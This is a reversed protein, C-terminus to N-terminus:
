GEVFENRKKWLFIGAGIAALGGLAALIYIIWNHNSDNIGTVPIDEKENIIIIDMDTNLVTATAPGQPIEPKLEVVYSNNGDAEFTYSTGDLTLKAGNLAADNSKLTAYSFLGVPIDSTPSVPQGYLASVRGDTFTITAGDDSSGSETEQQDVLGFALNYVGSLPTGSANTLLITNAKVNNQGVYYSLDYDHSDSEISNISYGRPIVFTIKDQDKMPLKGDNITLTKEGVQAKESVIKSLVAKPTGDVNRVTFTAVYSDANQIWDNENFDTFGNNVVCEFDYTKGIDASTLGPIDMTIVEDFSLSPDGYDGKTQETISVNRYNSVSTIYLNHENYDFLYPVATGTSMQTEQADSDSRSTYTHTDDNTTISVAVEYNDPLNEYYFSPYENGVGTFTQAGVTSYKQRTGDPSVLIVDKLAPDDKSVTAGSANVIKTEVSFTATRKVDGVNVTYSHRSISPKEFPAIQMESASATAPRYIGSNSTNSYVVDGLSETGNKPVLGSITLVVKEGNRLSTPFHNSYDFDYVEIIGDDSIQKGSGWDKVTAHGTPAGSVEQGYLDIPKVVASVTANSFDFADKNITDRLITTGDLTVSGTQSSTAVTTFTRNLATLDTALFYRRNGNSEGRVRNVMDTYVGSDSKTANRNYWTPDVFQTAGPYETTITRMYDAVTDTATNGYGQTNRLWIRFLTGDVYDPEYKRENTISTYKEYTLPDSDAFGFTGISYIETDKLTPSSKIQYAADIVQNGYNYQNDTDYNGPVGDTFYVVITLRDVEDGGQTTHKTMSRNDFINKAMYLGHQGLTGGNAELANVATGLRALQTADTVDLLANKYNDNTVSRYQIGNKRNNSTTINFDTGTLLETNADREGGAFGVLAVRHQVRTGDTNEQTSVTSVFENLAGKVADLRSIKNSAQYLTGNWYTETTSNYSGSPVGNADCAGGVPTGNSNCYTADILLHEVGADDKYALQNYGLHREFLTQRVFMGTDFFYFNGYTYREPDNGALGKAAWDATDYSVIYRGGPKLYGGTPTKYWIDDTWQLARKTGTMDTFRFRIWYEALGGQSSILLPYFHNDNTNGIPKNSTDLSPNYYYPSAAGDSDLQTTESQFWSLNDVCDGIFVTNPAHHEYLDGRKRYVRYYHDGTADTVKYYYEGAGDSIKWNKKEGNTYGTPVDPTSMSGSQDVVLVYDTPIQESLTQGVSNAELQLDYSTGNLSIEKKLSMGNTTKADPDVLTYPREFNAYADSSQANKYIGSAATNSYFKLFGTATDTETTTADKKLTLGTITVVLQQGNPHDASIYSAGYDFGTVSLTKSEDGEGWSIKSSPLFSQTPSFTPETTESTYTGDYIQATVHNEPHSPLNFDDSVIDRLVTDFSDLSATSTPTQISTSISEFVQELGNATSATFARPESAHDHIQSVDSLKYFQYFNYANTETDSEAWKAGRLWGNSDEWIVETGHGRDSGGNTVPIDVDGVREKVWYPNEGYQNQNEYKQVSLTLGDEREFFYTANPDYDDDKAYVPRFTTFQESSLQKLFSEAGSADGSDPYLGVTYVEAGYTDKAKSSAALAAEKDAPDGDTFVVVIRKRNENSQIPNNEFIQNAMSLGYSMYTGGYADLNSISTDIYDNVNNSNTDNSTKVSTLANKYDTSSITDLVPYYPQPAKSDTYASAYYDNLWGLPDTYNYEHTYNETETDKSRYYYWSLQHNADPVIYEWAGKRQNWTGDYVEGAYGDSYYRIPYGEQTFFTLNTYGDEIAYLGNGTNSDLRYYTSPQLTNGRGTRYKFLRYGSYFAGSPWSSNPLTADNIQTNHQGYNDSPTFSVQAAGDTPTLFSKFEGEIFVGANPAIYKSTGNIHTIPIRKWENDHNQYESYNPIENGAFGVLAVRHEVNNTAAREGISEVFNQVASKMVSLRTTGNSDMDENLMSGSQDMVLVIDLPVDETVTQTTTTGNAYAELRLDFNGGGNNRLGKSLVLGSDGSPTKLMDFGESDVEAKTAFNVGVVLCSIAFVLALFAAIFRRNFDATKAVVLASGGAAGYEAVNREKKANRKAFALRRKEEKTKGSIMHKKQKSNKM